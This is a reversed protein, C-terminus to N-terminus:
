LWTGRDFFIDPKGNSTVAVVFQFLFIMFGVSFYERGPGASGSSGAQELFNVPLVSWFFSAQLKGPCWAL